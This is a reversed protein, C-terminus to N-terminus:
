HAVEGQGILELIVISEAEGGDLYISRGRLGIDLIPNRLLMEAEIVIFTTGGQSFALTAAANGTVSYIGLIGRCSGDLAHETEGALLTVPTVKITDPAVDPM